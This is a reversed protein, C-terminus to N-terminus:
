RTPMGVLVVRLVSAVAMFLGGCRVFASIAVASATTIAAATEHLLLSSPAVTRSIPSLPPETEPDPDPEADPEPDADAVPM